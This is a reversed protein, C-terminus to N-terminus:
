YMLTRKGSYYPSYRLAPHMTVLGAEYLMKQLYQPAVSRIAAREKGTLRDRLTRQFGHGNLVEKLKRFLRSFSQHDRSSAALGLISPGKGMANASGIIFDRPEFPFGSLFFLDLLKEARAYLALSLFSWGGENCCSMHTAPLVESFWEFCDTCDALIIGTILDPGLGRPGEIPMIRQPDVGQLTLAKNANDSNSYWQVTNVGQKFSNSANSGMWGLKIYQELTRNTKTLQNIAHFNEHTLRPSSALLEDLINFIIEAPFMSLNGMAPILPKKHCMNEIGGESPQRFSALRTLVRILNQLLYYIYARFFAISISNIAENKVLELHNIYIRPMSRADM